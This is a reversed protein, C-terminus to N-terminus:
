PCTFFSGTDQVPQFAAGQPNVYEEVEGSVTDTVRLVVEVDTLGAAFIWFNRFAPLGCADLVKVVVEVNDPGFFWFFGTDDTLAVPQGTGSDGDATRWLAEVRFREGNLCLAEGAGCSKGSGGGGAAAAGAAGLSVVDLEFREFAEGVRRGSEDGGGSGGCTAFAGTDRIPQFASGLPNDYTRVDGTVTDTVTLEARVNTLGGAFVWFRDFPPFCADLVKVVLEVNAPDFFWFYGSDGTLEYPQGSGSAQGFDEWGAEVRFRGDNLCLSTADPFCWPRLAFDVRTVSGATVTLPTGATPDCGLPPGGPCYVGDHLQQHYGYDGASLYYTGTALGVIEYSGFASTSFLPDGNEDWLMVSTDLSEGTAADTLVGSVVAGLTLAFDIGATEAGAAVAVPTGATPDCRAYPCPLGDYLVDFYADSEATVFYTGRVLGGVEWHGAGDSTDYGDHVEGATNWVQIRVGPIPQGTAADVVAGTISSPPDLAFDIGELRQDFDVALPTGATVDCPDDCPLDRYLEQAYGSGSATVFYTGPDLGLLVYTGGQDTEDNGVFSGTADWVGVGADYLPAGTVADTVTGAISGLRTLVFDIGATVGGAAVAVPTGTTPDCSEPSRGECPLDDYLENRYPFSGDQYEEEFRDHTRVFYSGPPLGVFGYDGTSDSVASGVLAGAPDYVELLVSGIRVGTAADTVRGTLVPQQDGLAFDIGDVSGGLTVEIPEGQTVDCAEPVPGECPLNDYLENGYPFPDGFPDGATRVFYTGATLGYVTYVGTYGTTASGVRTGTEDWAEVVVLMLTEGTAAATVTGSIEGRRLLEFDIGGTIQNVDVAVPTGTTPDCGEACPLDDYLEDLYLPPDGFGGSATTVYYTGSDLAYSLYQGSEPYVEQVRDGQQNWIELRVGVSEGTVADTLTGAIQGLRDLAFDVGAVTADLEVAIPSGATLDCSRECPVDDYVENRYQYIYQETRAFYSGPPLGGVTYRGNEDSGADGVRLGSPRLIQVQIFPLPEGTVAETVTGTVRGLRRLDFDVTAVTGPAIEIPTGVTLDCPGQPCPVGDHLEHQYGDSRAIVYYTGAPLGTIAYGGSDDTFRYEVPGDTDRVTMEVAALPEGTAAARVTGAITGGPGLAFDIGTVVDQGVAIPTGDALSESCGSAPCAVGDYIEPVYPGADEIWALYTDPPLGAIAYGGDAGTTASTQPYGNEPAATVVASPIPEGTVADAVTGSVSGGPGVHLTFAGSAGASGAVRLCVEVGADAYFGLASQLGSANDNCEIEYGDAAPCASHVSLVTDFASGFTDAYVMQDVPSSYKFWVDPAFDSMGCFSSGDNTAESTDGAYSGDGIALGGACPDNAPAAKAATRGATAALLGPHFDSRGIRPGAWLPDKGGARRERIGLYWWYGQLGAGQDSSFDRARSRPASEGRSALEGAAAREILLELARLRDLMGERHASDWGHVRAELSRLHRRFREAEPLGGADLPGRVANEDGALRHRIERELRQLHDHLQRERASYTEEAAASCLILLAQLVVAAFSGRANM